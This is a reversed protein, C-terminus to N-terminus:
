ATSRMISKVLLSAAFGQWRKSQMNESTHCKYLDVTMVRSIFDDILAKNEFFCLVEQHSTYSYYDFNSSGLVLQSDDILLAKVHTFREPYFHLTVRKTSNEFEAYQKLLRWNNTAPLILNIEVHRPVENLLFNLFPFTIYPSEIFISRKAQALRQFLQKFGRHNQKGDLLVVQCDDFRKETYINKGNFSNQYDQRLFQTIAENEIRLMIDHWAFNHASFNMGGIYSINNDFLLIKKHNRACLKRWCFGLPNAYHLAVGNAQLNKLMRKTARQEQRLEDNRFNKPTYIFKDNMMVRNFQDVIVQRKLH